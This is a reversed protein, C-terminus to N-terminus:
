HTHSHVSASIRRDFDLKVDAIETEVGHLKELMVRMPENYPTIFVGDEEGWFLPAHRNGIEYCAKATMHPHGADIRIIIARCPPINVAYVTDGEAILVDDQKLGRTLISDDLRIGIEVGGASTKRHLKKFAEDWCIDVYDIKKGCYEADSVKGLLKECIM